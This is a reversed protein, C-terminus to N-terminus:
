KLLIVKQTQSINKSSLKILYIGSTFNIANWKLSYNGPNQYDQYINEVM